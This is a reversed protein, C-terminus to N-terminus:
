LYIFSQIVLRRVARARGEYGKDITTQLGVDFDQGWALNRSYQEGTWHWGGDAFQDRVNGFLVASEARNPLSWDRHDDADLSAAWDMAAQWALEKAPKHASLILLHDPAGETGRVLGAFYGGQQAWFSGIAPMAGGTGTAASTIVQLDVGAPTTPAGGIGGVNRGSCSELASQAWWAEVARGDAAAYRILYSPEANASESRAVAEGNEGSVILALRQGIAFKFTPTTV